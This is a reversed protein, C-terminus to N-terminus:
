QCATPLHSCERQSCCGSPTWEGGEHQCTLTEQPPSESNSQSNLEWLATKMKTTLIVSPAIM